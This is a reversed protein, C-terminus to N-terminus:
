KVASFVVDVSTYYVNTKGNFPSDTGVILWLEGKGNSRTSFFPHLSTANRKKYLSYGQLDAASIAALIIMDAGEDYALGKDFNTNFYSGALNKGPENTTAGVKLYLSDGQQVADEIYPTLEVDFAITYQTYPTLGTIQKKIFMFLNGNSSIGSIKLSKKGALEGQPLNAYDFSLQDTVSDSAQYNAFDGQWDYSEKKFDFSSSFVAFDDYNKKACGACLM